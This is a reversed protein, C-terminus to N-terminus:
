RNEKIRRRRMALVAAGLAAGWVIHSAVMMANRQAPQQSAPPMLGTLPVWGLYSAAWVGLGFMVGSTIGPSVHKHSTAAGYLAGTAAGFAFHAALARHPGELPVHRIAPPLRSMVGDTITALRLASVTPAPSSPAGDSGDHASDCSIWRCWGCPGLGIYGAAKRDSGYRGSAGESLSAKVLSM